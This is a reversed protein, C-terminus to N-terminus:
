FLVSETEYDEKKINTFYLYNIFDYAFNFSIRKRNNDRFNTMFLSFYEERKKNLEDNFLRIIKKQEDTTVWDPFIIQIQNRSTKISILADLGYDKINELCIKGEDTGTDIAKLLVINNQITNYISESVRIKQKDKIHNYAVSISISGHQLDDEELRKLNLKNKMRKISTLFEGGIQWNYERRLIINLNKKQPFINFQVNMTECPKALKQYHFAMVNYSTDAFVQKTFYNVEDILFRELFIKRIHKSNEASLFNIPVIVIGENSDMIKELSLQFLDTHKSKKLVSNDILKNQYLYPPNTLVFDYKKPNTLSNNFVVIKNDVRSLDIEYGKIAKAGKGKAWKLLDQGGAFPDCVNKNQVFKSFGSLIYETNTTLFQGLQQKTKV